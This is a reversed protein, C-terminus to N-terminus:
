VTIFKNINVKNGLYKRNIWHLFDLQRQNMKMPEVCPAATMFAPDFVDSKTPDGKTLHLYPAIWADAQYEEYGRFMESNLWNLVKFRYVVENLLPSIVLYRQSEPLELTNRVYTTSYIRMSNIADLIKAEKLDDKMRAQHSSTQVYHELVHGRRQIQYPMGDAVDVISGALGTDMGFRIEEPSYLLGNISYQLSKNKYLLFKSTFCIRGRDVFGVDLPKSHQGTASLGKMRVHISALDNACPKVIYISDWNVIYDIGEILIYGDMWIQILDPEIAKLGDLDKAVDLQIYDRRKSLESYRRTYRCGGYGEVTCGVLKLETLRATDWKVQIDRSTKVLSYHVGEEALKWVEDPTNGTVKSIYCAFGFQKGRESIYVDGSLKAHGKLTIDNNYVLDYEAKVLPTNTNFTISADSVAPYEKSRVLRRDVGYALVDVRKEHRPIQTYEKFADGITFEYVGEGNLTMERSTVPQPQFLSELGYYGYAEVVETNDIKVAPMYRLKNFTSNELAEGSWMTAKEFEGTICKLRNEESLMNFLDLREAKLGINANRASKRVVIYFYLETSNDFLTQSGRLNNVQLDDISILTDSLHHTIGQIVNNLHVGKFDSDKGSGFFISIDEVSGVKLPLQIVHRTRKGKPTYEKTEEFKFFGKYSISRDTYIALERKKLSAVDRIAGNLTRIFGDVHVWATHTTGKFKNLWNLITADNATQLFDYAIVKNMGTPSNKTEGTFYSLNSYFGLVINSNDLTAQIRKGNALPIPYGDETPVLLYDHERGLYIMTTGFDYAPDNMVAVVINNDINFKRVWCRRPSVMAGNTLTVSVFVDHAKMLDELNIWVDNVVGTMGLLHKPLHGIHYLHFRQSSNKTEPPVVYRKGVQVATTVGGALSVKGPGITLNYGHVNSLWTDQLVTNTVFPLLM